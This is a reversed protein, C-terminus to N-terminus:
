MCMYLMYMYMNYMYTGHRNRKKSGNGRWLFSGSLISSEDESENAAAARNLGKSNM